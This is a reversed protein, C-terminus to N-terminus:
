NQQKDIIKGKYKYQTLNLDQHSTVKSDKPLTVARFETEKEGIPSPPSFNSDLIAMLVLIVFALFNNHYKTYKILTLPISISCTDDKSM